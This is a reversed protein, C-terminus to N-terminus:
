NICLINNEFSNIVNFDFDENVKKYLGTIVAHRLSAARILPHRSPIIGYLISLILVDNPELEATIKKFEDQTM